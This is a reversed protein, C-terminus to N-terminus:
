WPRGPDVEVSASGSRALLRCFHGNSRGSRGRSKLLGTDRLRPLSMGRIHSDFYPAERCLGM